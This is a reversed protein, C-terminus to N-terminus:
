LRVRAGDGSLVLFPADPATAAALRPDAAWAALAPALSSREAQQSEPAPAGSADSTM